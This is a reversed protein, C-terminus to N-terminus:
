NKLRSNSKIKLILISNQIKHKEGHPDSLIKLNFILNRNEIRM